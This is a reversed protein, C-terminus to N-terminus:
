QGQSSIRYFSTSDASQFDTFAATNTVGVVEGIKTWAPADLATKKYIAYTIGVKANWRLTFQSPGSFDSHDITLPPPTPLVFVQLTKVLYTSANQAFMWDLYNGARNGIGLDAVGGFGGWRNFAFLVQRADHNHIQMSGYNGASPSDGWDYAAGSANTVSASNAPNTNIPWFEINGGSLNTGPVIQAVSSKVNLNTVAQQFFAGSAATPVGIQNVDPTFADMSAWIYNLPSAAQQLELYYAIRSFGHVEARLDLTYALSDAYNPMDPIDLSYVLQYNASEPVNIAAGRGALSTFSITSNTAIELQATTRDHIGNVTVTYTTSAKQPSTSLTIQQRTAPDLVADIVSLGGSLTFNAPNASNDAVPKSFVLTVNTLGGWGYARTIGPRDKSGEPTFLNTIVGFWNTAMKAYGVANPHLQDPFDSLPVASRIDDFYVERGLARQRQVMAPIYPNFTTQIQTNYPEGRVLLNAVIIKAYPRNTAMRAVLGELRNIAHATDNGQGYDNTGILLLIIDPDSVKNFVGEIISDIQGINWGSHGEHDSDPLGPAGNDTATGVFDVNFGANTLLSYLRARYGGPAGAGYTISDGVPMVRIPVKEASLDMQVAALFLFVALSFSVSYQM